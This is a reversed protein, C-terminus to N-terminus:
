DNANIIFFNRYPLPCVGGRGGKGGGGWGGGGGGGGPQSHEFIVM